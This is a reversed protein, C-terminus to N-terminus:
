KKARRVTEIAEQLTREEESIPHRKIYDNMAAAGLEDVKLGKVEAYMRWSDVDDIWSRFSFVKTDDKNKGKGTVRREKKKVFHTDTVAQTAAKSSNMTDQLAQAATTLDKKAMAM